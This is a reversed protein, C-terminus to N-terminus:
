SYTMLSPVVYVFCVNCERMGTNTLGLARLSKFMRRSFMSKIGFNENMETVFSKQGDEVFSLLDEGTMNERKFYTVYQSRKSGLDVFGLWKIVDSNDWLNLAKHEFVEPKITPKVSKVPVEPKITPKVPKVPFEPKTINQDCTICWIM